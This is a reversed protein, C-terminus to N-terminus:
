QASGAPTIPGVPGKSPKFVGGDTGGGSPRREHRGRDDSASVNTFDSLRGAMASGFRRKMPYRGCIPELRCAVLVHDLGRLTRSLKRWANTAALSLAMPALYGPRRTELRAHDERFACGTFPGNM